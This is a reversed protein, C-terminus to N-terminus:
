GKPGHFLTQDLSGLVGVQADAVGDELVDDQSQSAGEHQDALGLRQGVHTGTHGIRREGLAKRAMDVVDHSTPGAKKFVPLLGHFRAPRRRSM